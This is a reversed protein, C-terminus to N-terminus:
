SARARALSRLLCQGPVVVLAAAAHLSVAAVLVAASAAAVLVAALSDAAAALDVVVAASGTAVAVAASVIAARTVAAQLPILAKKASGTASTEAGAAVDEILVWLGSRVKAEDM